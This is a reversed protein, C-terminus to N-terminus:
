VAVVLKHVKETRCQDRTESCRCSGLIDLGSFVKPLMRASAVSTKFSYSFLSSSSVNSKTSSQNDHIAFKNLFCKLERIGCAQCWCRTRWRFDWTSFELKWFCVPCCWCQEQNLWNYCWWFSRVILCSIILEVCTHVVLWKRQWSCDLYRSLIADWLMPLSDFIWCSKSSIFSRSDHRGEISRQCRTRM